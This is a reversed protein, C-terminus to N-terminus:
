VYYEEPFVVRYDRLSLARKTLFCIQVSPILEMIENSGHRYPMRLMYKDKIVSPTSARVGEYIFKGNRKFYEIVQPVTIRDMTTVEANILQTCISMFELRHRGTGHLDWCRGDLTCSAECIMYTGSYVDGWRHALEIHTDWFYYGDGLWKYRKAPFPGSNEVKDADGRDEITQYVITEYIQKIIELFLCPKAWSSLKNLL